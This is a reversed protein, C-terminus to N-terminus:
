TNSSDQTMVVVCERALHTYMKLSRGVCLGVNRLGESNKQGVDIGLTDRGNHLAEMQVVAGLEDLRLEHRHEVVVANAALVRWDTRELMIAHNLAPDSHRWGVFGPKVFETGNDSRLCEVLSPVGQANIEALFGAFVEPVDSERKLFYPWGQRSYDHVIMMM